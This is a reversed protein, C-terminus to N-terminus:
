VTITSLDVTGTPVARLTLRMTMSSFGSASKSTAELGSNRRSPAANDSKMRGSRTTMPTSVSRASCTSRSNYRGSLRISVGMTTVPRSLASSILYAALANRAVFILKMLSIDARHSATSASTWATALPIPSSPRM